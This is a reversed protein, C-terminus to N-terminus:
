RREPHYTQLGRAAEARVGHDSIIQLLCSAMRSRPQIASQVRFPLRSRTPAVWTLWLTAFAPVFTRHDLGWCWWTIRSSGLWTAGSQSQVIPEFGINLDV